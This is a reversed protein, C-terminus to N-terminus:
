LGGAGSYRSIGCFRSTPHFIIQTIKMNSLCLIKWSHILGNQMKFYGEVVERGWLSLRHNEPFSYKTEYEM